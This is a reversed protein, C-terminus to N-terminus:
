YVMDLRTAELTSGDSLKVLEIYIVEPQHNSISNIIDNTFENGSVKHEIMANGAMYSLVYSTVSLSADRVSLLPCQQMEGPSIQFKADMCILLDNESDPLGQGHISTGLFLTFVMLSILRLLTKM